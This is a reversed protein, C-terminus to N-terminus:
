SLRGLLEGAEEALRLMFRSCGAWRDMVEEIPHGWRQEPVWHRSEDLLDSLNAPGGCVGYRLALAASFGFRVVGRHGQWGADRLGALYGEFVDEALDQAEALEFRFAPLLEGCLPVIDYGPPGIGAFGWDIGVTQEDGDAGRRAILNRGNADHHCFTQALRDLAEAFIMRETWLRHLADGVDAPWGRKLLPHGHSLGDLLQEVSPALHAIWRRLMDRMLWPASPLREGALYAGNFQGLHRAGLVIRERAWQTGLQGNIEELWIWVEDSSREVVGFCRPAALEGPLENLLGSAFALPERQWNVQILERTGSKNRNPRVVKLIAAWPVVAGQDSATGSFRYVGAGMLGGRVAACQWDTVEITDSGVAQRVVPTLIARGIPM